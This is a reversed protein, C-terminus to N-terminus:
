TCCSLLDVRWQVIRRMSIQLWSSIRAGDLGVERDFYLGGLIFVVCGEWMWEEKELLVCSVSSPVNWWWWWERERAFFVFFPFPYVDRRLTRSVLANRWCKQCCTPRSIEMQWAPNGERPVLCAIYMCIYVQLFTSSLSLSLPHAFALFRKWVDPAAEADRAFHSTKATSRHSTTSTSPQRTQIRLSALRLVHLPPPSLPPFSAVLSELLFLLRLCLRTLSLSLSLSEPPLLPPM